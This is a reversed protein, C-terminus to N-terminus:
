VVGAALLWFYLAYSRPSLSTLYLKKNLKVLRKKFVLFILQKYKAVM